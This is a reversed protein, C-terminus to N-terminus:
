QLKGCNTPHSDHNMFQETSISIASFTIKSVITRVFWFTDNVVMDFLEKVVRAIRSGSVKVVNHFFGGAWLENHFLNNPTIRQGAVLHYDYHKM